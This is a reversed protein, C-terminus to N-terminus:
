HSHGMTRGHGYAGGEPNFAAMTPTVQAGLGRLMGELVHDARILLHDAEIQCPTHRNGIHWALRPLPGHIRLCPEMAVVVGILRGDDLQFADGAELSITEALDVLFSVGARSTLRKRRLFRGEYDLVVADDAPTARLISGARAQLPLNM